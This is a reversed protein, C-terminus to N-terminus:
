WELRLNNKAQKTKRANREKGAPLLHGSLQRKSKVIFLREIGAYGPYYLNLRGASAALKGTGPGIKNAQIEQRVM